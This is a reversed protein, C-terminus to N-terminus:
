KSELIKVDTKKILIEDLINENKLLEKYKKNDLKIKIDEDLHNIIFTFIKNDKFRQTIEIGSPADFPAKIKTGKIIDKIFDDLFNEDPDSALYYSYGSGFKNKTIVPTDKYFDSGYHALAKATELHIIDCILGCKYASKKGNIFEDMIITNTEYEYLTDTEEVWIGLLKRLEGPYGGLKILDNENVIGSFFTNIFTGGNSVFSEINKAFGPKVMYLTPAIIIEYNSFDSEYSIIDVSINMDYFIKYYKETQSVYNLRTTLGSSYELAWWNDWDFIIAVKSKVKSENLTDKLNKLEEGLLSCEKFVRTNESGSHDILSGHFKECAGISKRLQFFMVTDAGHAIAQYSQLRMIGPKKLSNVPRWNVQSPTQEMLMFPDNNKLGRMLTHKIATEFPLERSSPYSDWSIIDMYKAWKHYDLPKFFGMLNTTIPIDPTVSKLANYEGLYCELVSDSIFRSYDLAMGQFSTVQRPTDSSWTDIAMESLYSVADIEDWDYITHGWFNLNWVRNVEEITKYRKKVWERFAKTCNECFCQNLYENAIHWILLSHRDKYRKALNLALRVSYKRYTKSNPCFNVRGGHKRKRGNIDVPLIDPYRKSMWAPQAATSTAFCIKINNKEILDIIKDLWSFDYTDESPQLKAWSFVPLTVINVNSLNFLRMDENWINEPWQDPNYDGGYMIGPFKVM